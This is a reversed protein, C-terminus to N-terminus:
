RSGFRRRLLGLALLGSAFALYTHPEPTHLPTATVVRIWDGPEIVRTNFTLTNGGIMYSDFAELGRHAFPAAPGTGMGILSYNTSPNGLLATSGGELTGGVDSMVGLVTGSFTWVVGVHTITLNGPSNLFIMHSDVPTGAAIFSGGDVALAAGLVVGQREDFGQQASNTVLDDLVDTPAPIIGAAVGASSNPGTVSVLAAGGPAAAFTALVACGIM